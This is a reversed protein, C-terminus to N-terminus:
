FPSRCYLRKRARESVGPDGMWVGWTNKPDVYKSFGRKADAVRRPSPRMAASLIRSLM